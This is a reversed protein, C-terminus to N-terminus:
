DPLPLIPEQGRRVRALNSLIADIRRQNPKLGRALAVEPESAAERFTAELSQGSGSSSAAEISGSLSGSGEGSSGEAEAKRRARRKRAYEREYAKKAEGTLPM